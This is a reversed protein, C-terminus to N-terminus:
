RSGFSGRRAPAAPTEAPKDAPEAAKEAAPAAKNFGSARPAAPKDGKGSAMNGDDDKEALGILGKLSFRRGYTSRAGQKQPDNDYGIKYESEVYQGSEPHTLRSVVYEDDHRHCNAQSLVLSSSELLPELNELLDPLELYNSKFFPNKSDKTMPKLKKKLEFFAPLVKNTEPSTLV